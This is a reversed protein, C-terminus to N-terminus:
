GGAIEDRLETLVEPSQDFASVDLIEHVQRRNRYGVIASTVRPDALVWACAAAGASWGRREGARRLMGALELNRTLMPEQFDPHSRRWDDAPLGEIREPSFTGTLLGSGMPSYALVGVDHAECYPLVANEAAPNILSYRPEVVDIPAIHELRKMQAVSFNSVGIYRVLGDRKLEALTEWGNELGTEPMPMHLLYVSITRGGLAERSAELERHISDREMNSSIVGSADWVRSCKTVILPEEDWDDLAKAVVEESRGLGYLRATDIWNAGLKLAAHIAQVSDSEEQPGWGFRYGGGGAAWAGFGIVSLDLDTNGLRRTLM